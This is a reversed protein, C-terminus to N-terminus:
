RYSHFDGIPVPLYKRSSSDSLAIPLIHCQLLPVALPPVHGWVSVLFIKGYIYVYATKPWYHLLPKAYADVITTGFITAHQQNNLM